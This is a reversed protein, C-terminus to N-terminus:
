FTRYFHCMSNRRQSTEGSSMYRIVYMGSSSVVGGRVERDKKDEKKVGEKYDTSFKNVRRGKTIM